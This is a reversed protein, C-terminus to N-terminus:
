QNKTQTFHSSSPFFSFKTFFKSNIKQACNLFIINKQAL